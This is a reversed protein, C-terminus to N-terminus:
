EMTIIYKILPDVLALAGDHNKFIYDRQLLVKIAQLVSAHQLKITNLFKQATPEKVTDFKAITQLVIRQNVSLSELERAVGGIEELAYERWIKIVDLTSPLTKKRWLRSCIVNLYYPHCSSYIFIQQLTDTDLQKSWNKRAATQIFKQYHEVSIRELIMRDCLKYLPKTSDDFINALLHRNSGSFIFAINSTQQAVNRIAAEIESSANTNTIDQFEDIFVIIKKKYQKALQDLGTLVEWITKTYEQGMPALSFEIATDHVKFTVRISKIFGEIKSVAKKTRPILQSLLPSIGNLIRTLITEADLAMFLDISAYPLKSDQIVKLALSTKGYRRPSTLLTHRIAYTNQELRQREQERNCFATEKAIGLPFLKDLM